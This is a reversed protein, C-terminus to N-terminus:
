AGRSQDLVASATGTTLLLSGRAVRRAGHSVRRRARSTGTSGGPRAPLVPVATVEAEKERNAARRAQAGPPLQQNRRGCRNTPKSSECRHGTWNWDIPTTSSAISFPTPSPQNASSTMGNTSRFNAPSSRLASATAIRSSRWFQGLTVGKSRERTNRFAPNIAAGSFRGIM